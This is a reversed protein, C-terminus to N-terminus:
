RDRAAEAREIEAVRREAVQRALRVGDDDQPLGKVIALFRRWDSPSALPSPPELAYTFAV